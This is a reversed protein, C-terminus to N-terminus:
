DEVEEETTETEVEESGGYDENLKELIDQTIDLGEEAYMINASENSGFIYTYGNDKGYDKVYDKIKNVISDMVVNSQERLRNSQMQQQQQLMQQKQMLEQENEKRQSESMSNMDSQYAQVEQQFVRAVSDLQQRVSDSKSTFEAEVDKMEKYEQVIKTTDVYATKQENCSVMMIAVAAIGIFRRIM